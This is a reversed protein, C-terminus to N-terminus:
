PELSILGKRITYRILEVTSKMNLKIMINARHTEVTKVSIYLHNAITRNPMGEALLQLVERERQTLQRYPDDNHRMTIAKRIYDDSIPSIAPSLYLEGKATAQIAAVLDQPVSKKLLYGSAGARLTQFIYEESAYMSLILVNIEPFKRKLQNTAEIGNLGPMAIDMVVVHPHLKEAKELADRGDEAEGIVIIGAEGDILSRLGKRVLTHDEALLVKIKSM